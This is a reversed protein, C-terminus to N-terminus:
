PMTPTRTVAVKARRCEGYCGLGQRGSFGTRVWRDRFGYIRFGLLGRQIM